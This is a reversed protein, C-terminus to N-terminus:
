SLLNNFTLVSKDQKFEVTFLYRPSDFNIVTHMMQTNFLYFTDKEYEFKLIEYIRSARNLVFHASLDRIRPIELWNSIPAGFGQKKREFVYKPIQDGNM